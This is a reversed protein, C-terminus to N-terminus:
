TKPPSSSSLPSCVNDSAAEAFWYVFRVERLSELSSGCNRLEDDRLLYIAALDGLTGRGHLEVQVQVLADRWLDNASAEQSLGANGRVSQFAYLKGHLWAAPDSAGSIGDLVVSALYKNLLWPRIVNRQTPVHGASRPTCRDLVNEWDAKWPNDIGLRKHSVRKAPSTREWRCRESAEWVEARERYPATTPFDHPFRPVGAELMQADKQQQGGVLTGTYTLSTLFPMAWGSPIIMTWGHIAQSGSHGSVTHRILLLAIRDDEHLPNLKGGPISNQFVYIQHKSFFFPLRVKARREDLDRKRFRPKAPIASTTDWIESCALRPSPDVSQQLILPKPVQVPPNAPPFSSLTPSFREISPEGYQGSDRTM